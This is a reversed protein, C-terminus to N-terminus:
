ETIILTGTKSDDFHDHFSFTGVPGATFTASETPSLAPLNMGENSHHTPHDGSSFQVSSPSVNKVTVVTGVKVTLTNPSFGESTFTIVAEEQQADTATDAQDTTEAEHEHQSHDQTESAPADAKQGMLAWALLAVGFVVLVGGVILKSSKRDKM